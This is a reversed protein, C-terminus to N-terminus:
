TEFRGLPNNFTRTTSHDVSISAEHGKREKRKGRGYKFSASCLAVAGSFSDFFTLPVKKSNQFYKPHSRLIMTNWGLHIPHSGAQEIVFSAPFLFGGRGAESCGDGFDFNGHRLIQM